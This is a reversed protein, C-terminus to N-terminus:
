DGEKYVLGCWTVASILPLNERGTALHCSILTKVNDTPTVYIFGTCGFLVIDLMAEVGKPHVCVERYM